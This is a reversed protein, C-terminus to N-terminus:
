ENRLLTENDSEVLFVSWTLFAWTIFVYDALTM